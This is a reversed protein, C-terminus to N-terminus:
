YELEQLLENWSRTPGSSKIAKLGSHAASSAAVSAAKKALLRSGGLIGASGLGGILGVITRTMAAKANFDAMAKELAPNGKSTDSTMGTYGTGSGGTQIVSAPNLGLSSLQDAASTIDSDRMQTNYDRAESTVQQSIENNIWQTQEPTAQIGNNALAGQFGIASIDGKNYQDLYYNYGATNADSQSQQFIRYLTKGKPSNPQINQYGNIYLWEAFTM